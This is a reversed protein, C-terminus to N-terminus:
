TCPYPNQCKSQSEPNATDDRASSTHVRYVARLIIQKNQKITIASTLQLAPTM